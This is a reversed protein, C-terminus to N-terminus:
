APNKPLFLSFTTGKEPDSEFCVRGSMYHEGLLKISYTGLGRGKGKTSFSRQFIHLQNERSIYGDNSVWFEVEEGCENCGIHVTGQPAVAEIGNKVMNGIVRNVLNRDMNLEIDVAAPSIEVVCNKCYSSNTYFSAARTLIDMTRCPLLSVELDNNEAASIQRQSTIEDVLRESNEWVLSLMMKRKEETESQWGQSLLRSLGAVGGAINMVDHFFIRELVRRRQQDTVDSLYLLMFGEKSQPLPTAKVSFESAQGTVAHTLSCEQVDETQNKQCNIIAQAAGCSSCWKTTGCGFKSTGAHDCALAEGPRKGSLQQLSEVGFFDLFEQNAFIIQRHTNLVAVLGPYTNLVEVLLTNKLISQYQKEIDASSDRLRLPDDAPIIFQVM